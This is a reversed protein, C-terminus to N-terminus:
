RVNSYPYIITDWWKQQIYNIKMCWFSINNTHFERSDLHTSQSYLSTIWITPMIYWMVFYHLKKNAQKQPTFSPLYTIGGQVALFYWVYVEKLFRMNFLSQIITISHLILKNNTDSRCENWWQM